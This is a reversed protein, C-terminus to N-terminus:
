VDAAASNDYNSAYVTAPPANAREHAHAAATGGVAQSPPGPRAGAQKIIIARAQKEAPSGPEAGVRLHLAQKDEFLEYM